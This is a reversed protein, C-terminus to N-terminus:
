KPGVLGGDETRSVNMSDEAIGGEIPAGFPAAAAASFGAILADRALEQDPSLAGPQNLVHLYGWATYKGNRVADASYTVGNYNLEKAGALIANRADNLGLHSVLVVNNGSSLLADTASRLEVSTTTSGMVTAITGGSVYGGNGTLVDNFFTTNSAEFSSSPWRRVVTATIGDNLVRFQVVPRTIGYRTEALRTTRTGSGADRGVAYVRRTDAALGTFLSLRLSGTAYLAEHLQDTINNLEAPAGDNAVFKFPIVGGIVDDLAATISTSERYVDSCAVTPILSTRNATAPATIRNGWPSVEAATFTNNNPDIWGSVPVGAAVTTMGEVSGNWLTNITVIGDIGDIEGKFCARSARDLQTGSGEWVGTKNTMVDLIAQMTVSRYATSGTINITVDAQTVPALALSLASAALLAKTKM